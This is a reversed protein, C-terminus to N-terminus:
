KVAPQAYLVNIEVVKNRNSAGRVIKVSGKSVGFEKALLETLKENAKGDAPPCQIRARYGDETKVLENRDANATVRVNIKM